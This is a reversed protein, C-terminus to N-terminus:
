IDGNYHRIKSQLINLLPKKITVIRNVIQAVYCLKNVAHRSLLFAGSFMTYAFNRYSFSSM